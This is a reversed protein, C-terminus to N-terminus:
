KTPAVLVRAQARAFHLYSKLDAPDAALARKSAQFARDWQGIRAMRGAVSRWQLAAIKPFRAFLGAHKELVAEHAFATNYAHQSISDSSMRQDVMPAAVARFPGLMALRLTIEWDEPGRIAPDFLGIELLAGRRAVLTQTSIFCKACLAEVIDGEPYADKPVVWSPSDKGLEIVNMGSYSAVVDPADFHPMHASLKGQLWIDDSDQFAIIEASAALIGTNRAVSAGGNKHHKLITLRRDDFAALTELTADTSGDDVVVVEFDPYDQDLVSQLAAAISAERNYTPIVVTVPPPTERVPSLRLVEVTDALGEIRSSPTDQM